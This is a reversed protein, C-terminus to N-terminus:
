VLMWLGIRTLTRTTRKQTPDTTEKIIRAIEEYHKKSMSM